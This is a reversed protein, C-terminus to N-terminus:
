KKVSELKIKLRINEIVDKLQRIPVRIGAADPHGGGDANKIGRISEKALNDLDIKINKGKRLSIGYYESDKQYIVIVKDDFKREVYTSFSSKLRIKSKIEYLLISDIIKKNKEFDLRIKEFENKCIKYYKTLTKNNMVDEYKKVGNLVKLTFSAGIANKVMMGSEIMMTLKGLLSNEILIEDNPELDDVLKKYDIKIKNFLDLCNKLGMDGLCGIGAIWSIEKPNFFKEYIKYCIYTTPLYTEKEFIRPNIYTIKVYGKPIHHDIIMVRSFKIMKTIIEVGVNAIDVVITYSPKIQKIKNFTREKLQSNLESVVLIPTNKRGKILKYLIAASCISDADHGHVIVVKDKPKILEIFNVAPLILEKINM